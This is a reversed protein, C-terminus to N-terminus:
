VRFIMLNVIALMAMGRILWRFQSLNMRSMLWAGVCAGVILGPIASLGATLTQTNLLGVGILVPIKAANILMFAWARTAVYAQKDMKQEMLYLSLLPGAANALTSVLGSILGMVQGMVPLRMWRAPRYELWLSLLLMGSILLILLWTFESADTMSLVWGGLVIGMIALPLLHILVRYNVGERYKFVALLDTIIYMPIIVGLAEPGPFAIMVLPLILMGMGGTSFKSLGTVFAAALLSICPILLSLDSM